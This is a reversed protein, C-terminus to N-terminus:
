RLNGSKGSRSAARCISEWLGCFPDCNRPRTLAGTAEVGVMGAVGAGGLEQGPRLGPDVCDTTRWSGAVGAILSDEMSEYGVMTSLRRLARPELFSNQAAIVIASCHRRELELLVEGRM